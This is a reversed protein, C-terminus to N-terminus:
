RRQRWAAVVQGPLIAACKAYRPIMRRPNSLARWLWELAIRRVWFPARRQHGGLFDLGAGVSAFGGQPALERGRAAFREQKPAGLALFCFCPGLANAQALLANAEAGAPDFGYAPAQQM